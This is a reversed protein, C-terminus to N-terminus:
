QVISLRAQYASIKERLMKKARALYVRSSNINIALMEAIEEHSYGEIQRMNFIVRDRPTLEEIFKLIYGAELEEWATPNQDPLALGEEIEEFFSKRKKLFDLACRVHIKRIWSLLQGKSEDYNKLHKFVRTFGNQLIDQTDQHNCTYRYVTNYMAQVYKNYLEWQAAPDCKLCAIVLEKDTVFKGM